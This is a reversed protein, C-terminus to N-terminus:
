AAGAPSGLFTEIAVQNGVEINHCVMDMAMAPTLKTQDQLAIINGVLQSAVALIEMPTLDDAYTQLVAKFGDMVAVHVINPEVLKM